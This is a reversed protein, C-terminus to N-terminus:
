QNEISTNLQSLLNPYKELYTNSLYIGMPRAHEVYQEFPPLNGISEYADLFVAEALFVADLRKRSLLEVLQIPDGTAYSVSYNNTNLWKHTNTNLITGIKKISKFDDNVLGKNDKFYFWSWNNIVVPESLTAYHNREINETALFFGDARGSKVEALARGYNPVLRITYPWNMM